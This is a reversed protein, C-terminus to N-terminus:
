PEEAAMVGIHADDFYGMGGSGQTHLNLSLRESGEPAMGELSLWTWNTRGTIKKSPGM